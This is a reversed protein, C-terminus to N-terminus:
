TPISEYNIATQVLQRANFPPAQGPHLAPPFRLAARGQGQKTINREDQWVQVGNTDMLYFQLTCTTEKPQGRNPPIVCFVRGLLTYDPAPIVGTTLHWASMPALTFAKGSKNLDTTIKFSVQETDFNMPRPLDNQMQDVRIIANAYDPHHNQANTLVGSLLLSEVMSGAADKFDAVDMALSSVAIPGGPQIRTVRQSPGACGMWLTVVFAAGAMSLFNQKM